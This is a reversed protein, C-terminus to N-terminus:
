LTIKYLTEIGKALHFDKATLGGADHTTLRITVTGYGVLMDPHHDQKEAEKAVEQVFQIGDLYNKFSFTKCIIQGDRIWGPLKALEREIQQNTFKM